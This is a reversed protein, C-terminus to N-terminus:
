LVGGKFKDNLVQLVYRDLERDYVLRNGFKAKLGRLIVAEQKLEEALVLREKALKGFATLHLRFRLEFRQLRMYDNLHIIDITQPTM